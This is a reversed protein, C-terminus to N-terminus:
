LNYAKKFLYTKLGRKFQEVSQVSKVNDPISNWIKPAAVAFSRDGASRLNSHPVKLLFMSNSRLTRKQEHEILLDRLYKPQNTQLVKFTIMAIKFVIRSKIPLWHLTKLGETIHDYKRIQLVVRAAANQVRQLRDLLENSIGFLLSNSYDLHSTVMAHVLTKAAEVTLYKRISRLERINRFCKRELQEIHTTMKMVQDFFVGLNRISKSSQITEGCMDISDFTMKSLQQRTGIILIETKDGNLKLRNEAMWQSVKELCSELKAKADVQACPISANFAQHLQTDDAFMHFLIALIRLLLGLPGTYRTYGWPGTGSGQPMGTELAQKSSTAGNVHVSQVRDTFYSTFWALATDTIGYEDELRRLFENHPVTDFAASLDLLTLITVQQNDMNTLITNAVQLLATECSHYKRYASQYNEDLNNKACYESLKEIVIREILKSIFPLNSIPRFNKFETVNAKKPIPTILAEKLCDPMHGSSLSKNVIDTIVQSVEDMCDKLIHTPIPDLACSKSPSKAIYKKVEDVTVTPFVSYKSQGSRHEINPLEVNSNCVLSDNIKKIKDKFFNSFQEALETNNASEPYAVDTPKNTLKRVLKYLAKQDGSKDSISNNCFAIKKDDIMRNVHNKQTKYRKLHESSGSNRWARELKRRENKENHVEEDYWPKAIENKVRKTILPAHKDLSSRLVTNYENVLM